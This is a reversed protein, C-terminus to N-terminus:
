LYMDELIWIGNVNRLLLNYEVTEESLTDSVYNWQYTKFIDYKVHCVILDDRIQRINDIEHSRIELKDPKTIWSLPEESRLVISAASSGQRTFTLMEEVTIHNNTYKIYADMLENIRNEYTKQINEDSIITYDIGRDTEVGKIENGAADYVKLEYGAILGPVVYREIKYDTEFFGAIKQATKEEINEKIYEDSVEIGNITAKMTSDTIFEAEETYSFYTNLEIRGAKWENFGFEDKSAVGLQITMILRDGSYIDYAPKHETYKKENRESRIEGCYYNKVEQEALIEKTYFLNDSSLSEMLIKKYEEQSFNEIYKQIFLEPNGAEKAKEYDQQYSSLLDWEWICIGAIIGTLLIAYIIMLKKFLTWEKIKEIFHKM